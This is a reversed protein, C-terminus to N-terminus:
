EGDDDLALKAQGASAAKVRPAKKFTADLQKVPPRKVNKGNLLEEITLLQWRPYTGWESIFFEGTAAEKKMEKSPADLSILVGIAAKERQVVGKL